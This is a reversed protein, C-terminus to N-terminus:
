GKSSYMLTVRGHDFLFGPTKTKNIANICRQLIARDEDLSSDSSIVVKCRTDPRRMALRIYELAVPDEVGNLNALKEFELFTM